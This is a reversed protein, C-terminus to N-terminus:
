VTAVVMPSQSRGGARHLAQPSSDPDLVGPVMPRWNRGLIIQIHITGDLLLHHPVMCGISSIVEGSRASSSPGGVYFSSFGLIICV